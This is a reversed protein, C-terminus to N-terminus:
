VHIFCDALEDPLKFTPFLQKGAAGPEGRSIPDAPNAISEIYVIEPSISLDSLVLYTRRVSLNIHSNPSRGKELAGITGQNDSHILLRCHRLGMEELFYTLLEIALTELWCIDRGPVKWTSSLQFSAWSSGIVIGIGWSTSADVYLGLDQLPGRPQLTRCIGAVNLKQFWWALDSMMSHPPYRSIVENNHFSSAFNSLSPLRSRGDMYVFAVHCLSGHIKEVDLLHCPRRQFNDLFRRVRERFKLRKEEPLSVLKAPIDWRFGIFTTIFLFHDDGKEEHWPIGLSQVRRLMEARDYDYLFDGDRFPGTPSPTRFVKLDDEYKTVPSVGEAHWIDVVANAIMGANSSACAAGFPHVHDILFENPRGQVVLWPKHSPLVPCTRHFKAIDLTCAQTGPPALAIQLYTSLFLLFLLFALFLFGIYLYLLYIYFFPSFSFAFPSPSVLPVGM